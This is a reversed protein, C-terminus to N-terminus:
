EGGFMSKIDEWLSVKEEGTQTKPQYFVIKDRDINRTYLVKYRKVYRKKIKRILYKDMRLGGGKLYKSNPITLGGVAIGLIIFSLVFLVALIKLIVIGTMNAILFVPMGIVLGGIAYLIQTKTLKWYKDEDNNIQNPPRYEGLAM